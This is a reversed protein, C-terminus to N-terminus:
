LSMSAIDVVQGLSVTSASKCDVKHMSAQTIMPFKQNFIEAFKNWEKRINALMKVQLKKFAKGVGVNWLLAYETVM